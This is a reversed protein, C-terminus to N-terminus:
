IPREWQKTREPLKYHKPRKDMLKKYARDKLVGADLSQKTFSISGLREYFVDFAFDIQKQEFDHSVFKLKETVAIIVPQFSNAWDVVDLDNMGGYNFVEPVKSKYLRYWDYHNNRAFTFTNQIIFIYTIVDIDKAFSPYEKLLGNKLTYFLINKNYQMLESFKDSQDCFNDTEDGMALAMRNVYSGVDKRWLNYKYKIEHRFYGKKKLEAGFDVILGYLYDNVLFMNYFGTIMMASVEEKDLLIDLEDKM